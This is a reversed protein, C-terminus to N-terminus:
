RSGIPRLARRRRRRHAPAVSDPSGVAVVRGRDLRYLRDAVATLFALDHEVVLVASGLEDALERVLPRLAEAERQALGSTPEDLILLGPRTAGQAALDCLHRVGTSLRDIPVDAHESLGFRDIIADADAARARAAIRVWPAGVLAGFAGTPEHRDLALEITERVTLAPFLRADQFGRSVGLRARGDPALGSADRGFLVVRGRAPVLGCVADLLSTKGAGNAGIVGVVEGPAVEISVGDVATVGGFRVVVGTTSLALEAAAV